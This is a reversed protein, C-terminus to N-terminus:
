LVVSLPIDLFYLFFYGLDYLHGLLNDLLNLFFNDPSLEKRTLLYDLLDDGLLGDSLDCVQRHLQIIHSYLECLYCCFIFM